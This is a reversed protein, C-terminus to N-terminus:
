NGVRSCLSYEPLIEGPVVYRYADFLIQDLLCYRSHILQASLYLFFGILFVPDAVTVEEDCM